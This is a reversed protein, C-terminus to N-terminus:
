ALQSKLKNLEIDHHNLRKDRNKERAWIDHIIELTGTNNFDIAEKIEKSSNESVQKIEVRLDNGLQKMESRLTDESQKIEVRLDDGLQKMESRLTDESQKIEARLTNESQKMESRLDNVSTQINTVGKALTILLDDREKNTM